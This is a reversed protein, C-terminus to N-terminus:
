LPFQTVRQLDKIEYGSRVRSETHVSRYKWHNFAIYQPFIIRVKCLASISFILSLGPIQVLLTRCIQMRDKINITCESMTHRAQWLDHGEFYFRIIVVRM